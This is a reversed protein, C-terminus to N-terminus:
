RRRKLTLPHKKNMNMSDLSEKLEHHFQLVRDSVLVKEVPFGCFIGRVSGSFRIPTKRFRVDAYCFRTSNEVCSLINKKKKKKKKM